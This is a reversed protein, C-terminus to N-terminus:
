KVVWKLGYMVKPKLVALANAHFPNLVKSSAITTAIYIFHGPILAFQRTM